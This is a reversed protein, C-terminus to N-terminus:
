GKKNDGNVGKLYPVSETKLIPRERKPMFNELKFKDDFHIKSKKMNSNNSVATTESVSESNASEQTETCHLNTKHFHRLSSNQIESSTLVSNTCTPLKYIFRRLIGIGLRSAFEISNM